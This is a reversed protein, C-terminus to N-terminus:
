SALMPVKGPAQAVDGAVVKGTKSSELQPAGWVHFRDVCDIILRIRRNEIVNWKRSRPALLPTFSPKTSPAQTRTGVCCFPRRIPGLHKNTPQLRHRASTRSSGNSSTIGFLSGLVVARALVQVSGLVVRPHISAQYPRGTAPEWKIDGARHGFRNQQPIYGAPGVATFRSAM